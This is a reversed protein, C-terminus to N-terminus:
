SFSCIYMATVWYNSNRASTGCDFAELLGTPVHILRQTIVTLIIPPKGLPETTFFRGAICFDRTRNRPQSYGRALDTDIARPNAISQVVVKQTIENFTVRSTKSDPLELM